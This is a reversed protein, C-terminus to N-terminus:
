CPFSATHSLQYHGVPKDCGITEAGTLRVCDFLGRLQCAGRWRGDATPQKAVLSRTVPHGRDKAISRSLLHPVYEEYGEEFQDFYDHDGPKSTACAPSMWDRQLPQALGM